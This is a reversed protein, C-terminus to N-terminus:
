SPRKLLDIALAVAGQAPEATLVAPVARPIDLQAGIPGILSPCAKFVGGALVV